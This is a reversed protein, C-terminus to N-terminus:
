LLYLQKLSLVKQISKPPPSNAIFPEPDDIESEIIGATEFLDHGLIEIEALIPLTTIAPTSFDEKVQFTHTENKCCGGMDCCPEEEHFVSVAVMEAGCYHKSVVLGITSVLLVFALITHSFIKFM